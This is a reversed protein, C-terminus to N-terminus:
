AGAAWPGAVVALLMATETTQQAAGLIDGTYGGVQRRALWALTAAAMAAAALAALAPAPDLAALAAAAGLALAVALTAASPRGMGAGLGDARAPPLIMALVPVTARSAAGTGVLAAGAVWPDLAALAAAKIAVVMGLALVGYTGIHSDRMIALREAAPRRVGFGDATDALGDEHLGGTLVMGAALALLVAVPGPLGAQAAGVLVLGCALGVAAGVLPFVRLARALAGPAPPTPDDPLPIRTLFQGARRLDALWAAPRFDESAAPDM